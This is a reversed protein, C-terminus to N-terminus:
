IDVIADAGPIGISPLCIPRDGETFGRFTDIILVYVRTQFRQFVPGLHNYVNKPMCM